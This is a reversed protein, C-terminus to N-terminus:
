YDTLSYLRIFENIHIKHQNKKPKVGHYDFFVYDNYYKLYFVNIPCGCGTYQLKFLNNKGYKNVLYIFSEKNGKSAQEFEKYDDNYTYYKELINNLYNINILEREFNNDSAYKYADIGNTIIGCNCINTKLYNLLQHEFDIINICERKIEIILIPYQHPHFYESKYNSYVAVDLSLHEVKIYFMDTNIKLYEFIYVLFSQRVEEEPTLRVEKNRVFCKIYKEGSIEIDKIEVHVSFCEKKM